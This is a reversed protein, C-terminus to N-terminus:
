TVKSNLNCMVTFCWLLVSTTRRYHEAALGKLLNNKKLVALLNALFRIDSGMEFCM